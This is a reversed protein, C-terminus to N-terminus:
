GADWRAAIHSTVQLGELEPLQKAAAAPDPSMKALREYQMRTPLMRTPLMLTSM